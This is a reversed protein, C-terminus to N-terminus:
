FTVHDPDPGVREDKDMANIRQMDQESLEFDFVNANEAIRQPNASKPIVVVERQLNWRIVIQAISKGHQRAIETLEPLDFVKGQMLPSWAELQIKHKQCYQYLDPRQLRPHFEVQNVAPVAGGQKALAELHHVMFNSVGIARVKGQEQLKQLDEWAQQYGEVAWHLLYLDVYDLGLRALSQECAESAKGERIDTNWCKTTVFIEERTVAASRVAKGVGEENKYIMATDIHRYGVELARAIAQEVEGENDMKFVGLGLWPMAVDNNLTTTSDIALTM